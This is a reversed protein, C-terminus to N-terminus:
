SPYQSAACFGIAQHYAAAADKFETERALKNGKLYWTYADLNDTRESALLTQDASLRLKGAIAEAIEQQVAFTDSFERDYVHSWLHYGDRANVLQVTIRIRDGARRVSGELINEVELREGIERLDLTGTFFPDVGGAPFLPNAPHKHFTRGHDGSVALGISNRYPREGPRSGGIYYLYTRDDAHRM